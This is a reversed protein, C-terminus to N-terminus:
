AAGGPRCEAALIRALDQQHDDPYTNAAVIRWFEESQDDPDTSGIIMWGRGDPHPVIAEDAIEEINYDVIGGDCATLTDAIEEYCQNYERSSPLYQETM